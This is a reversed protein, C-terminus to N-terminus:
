NAATRHGAPTNLRREPPGGRWVWGPLQELQRVRERALKGNNHLMRTAAVKQGLPYSRERHGQPVRLHGERAAFDRLATLFQAWKDERWDWVWGPLASLLDAQAVPLKGNRHLRRQALVWRGLPFGSEQHESPPCAHGERTSFAALSDLGRRFRAPPAQWRWAARPATVARAGAEDFTRLADADLVDRLHALLASVMEQAAAPSLIPVRMDHPHLVPLPEERMRVVTWGAARLAASKQADHDERGRHYYVGDYEILLHLQAVTIDPRWRRGQSVIAPPRPNVTLGPLAHALASAVALQRQSVGRRSACRAAAMGPLLLPM